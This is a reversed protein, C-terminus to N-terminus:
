IFNEGIINDELIGLSNRNDSSGALIVSEVVLCIVECGPTQYKSLNTQKNM